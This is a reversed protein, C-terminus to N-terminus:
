KANISQNFINYFQLTDTQHKNLILFKIQTPLQIVKIQDEFQVSDSVTNNNFTNFPQTYRALIENKIKFYEFYNPSNMITMFIMAALAICFSIISLAILSEILSSAKLKKFIKFLNM